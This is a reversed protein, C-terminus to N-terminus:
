LTTDGPEVGRAVREARARRAYYGRSTRLEEARALIAAEEAALQAREEPDMQRVKVALKEVKRQMKDIERANYEVRVARVANKTGNAVKSSAALVGDEVSRVIHSPRLKSAVMGGVVAVGAIAAPILPIAM